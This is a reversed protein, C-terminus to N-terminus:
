AVNLFTVGEDCGVPKRELIRDNVLNQNIFRKLETGHNYGHIVKLTFGIGRPIAGITNNIIKKADNVRLYHIDIRVVVRNNNDLCVNFRWVDFRGAEAAFFINKRIRCLDM